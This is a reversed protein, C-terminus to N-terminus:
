PGREPDASSVERLLRLIASLAFGRRQLFRVQRAKERESRPPMGYRRQWLAQLAVADDVAAEALAAAITEQGVGQAELTAAIARRGHSDTKRGVVARAYREDSLLGLGTLEDLLADVEAATPSGEDRHGRLLRARLEARGHERRALCALARSRLTRAPRSLADEWRGARHAARVGGGNPHRLGFGHGQRSGFPVDRAFRGDPPPLSAM